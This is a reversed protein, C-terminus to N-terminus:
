VGSQIHKAGFVIEHNLVSTTFVIFVGKAEFIYALIKFEHLIAPCIGKVPRTRRNWYEKSKWESIIKLFVGFPKSESNNLQNGWINQKILLM